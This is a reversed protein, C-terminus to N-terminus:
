RQTENGETSSEPSQDRCKKCRCHESHVSESELWPLEGAYILDSLVRGLDQMAEESLRIAM